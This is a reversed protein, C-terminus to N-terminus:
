APGAALFGLATGMTRAVDDDTHPETNMEYRVLKMSNRVVIEVRPMRRAM